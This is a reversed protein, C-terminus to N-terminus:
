FLSACSKGFEDADEALGVFCCDKWVWGRGYRQPDLQDEEISYTLGNYAYITAVTGLYKDMYGDLNQCCLGDPDWEDRIRVRDGRKYKQM